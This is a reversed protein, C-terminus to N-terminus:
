PKARVAGGAVARMSVGSRGSVVALIFVSVATQLLALGEYHPTFGEYEPTLSVDAPQGSLLGLGAVCAGAPCFVLAADLLRRSGAAAPTGRLCINTLSISAVLLLVYASAAGYHAVDYVSAGRGQDLHRVSYVPFVLLAFMACSQLLVLCQAVAAIETGDMACGRHCCWQERRAGRPEAANAKRQHLVSVQLIWYQLLQLTTTGGFLGVTVMFKCSSEGWWAGVMKSLTPLTAFVGSQCTRSYAVSLLFVWMLMGGAGVALFWRRTFEASHAVVTAAEGARPACWRAMGAGRVSPRTSSAKYGGAALSRWGNPAARGVGPIRLACRVPSRAQRCFARASPRYVFPCDM